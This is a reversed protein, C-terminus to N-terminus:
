LSFRVTRKEWRKFWVILVCLEEKLCFALLMGVKINWQGVGYGGYFGDFGDIHRGVCGIFDCLCVLSIDVCRM